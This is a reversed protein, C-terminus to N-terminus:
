AKSSFTSAPKAQITPSGSFPGYNFDDQKPAVLNLSLNVFQLSQYILQQNLDNKEQIRLVLEMLEFRKQELETKEEGEMVNLCDSLNPKDQAPLLASAIKQRESELKSIAAVHAQEDKLIQNLGNIDGKKIIDTKEESLEYLSKHLKVMKGMLALLQKEHM